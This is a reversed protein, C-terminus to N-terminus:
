VGTGEFGMPCPKEPCYFGIPRDLKMTIGCQPCTVTKDKWSKNKWDVKVKM